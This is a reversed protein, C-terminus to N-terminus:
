FPLDDDDPEGSPTEERWDSVDHEQMKARFATAAASYEAKTKNWYEARAYDTYTTVMAAMQKPIGVCATIIAYTRGKGSTRHGISLLAHQGTLKDLKVGAAIQEDTYPQGRWQELFKRLNAKDGMSITFERAVDIDDGTEENKEGTRFVLVCKRALHDTKGPYSEVKEGLDIVDVCQAVYQNVPHPHFKSPTAGPTTIQDSM